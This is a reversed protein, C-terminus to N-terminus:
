SSAQRQGCPVILNSGAPMVCGEWCTPQLLIQLDKFAHLCTAKDAPAHQWSHVCGVQQNPDFGPPPQEDVAGDEASYLSNIYLNRPRVAEKPRAEGQQPTTTQVPNFASEGFDYSAAASGKQGADPQAWMNGGSSNSPPQQQQSNPTSQVSQVSRQDQQGPLQQQSNAQAKGYSALPPAPAREPKQPRSLGLSPYPLHDFPDAAANANVPPRPGLHQPPNSYSQPPISSASALPPTSTMRSIVPPYSGSSSEEGADNGSAYASCHALSEFLSLATCGKFNEMNSRLFEPYPALHPEEPMGVPLLTPLIPILSTCHKSPFAIAKSSHM